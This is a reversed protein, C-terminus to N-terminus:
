ARHITVDLPSALITYDRRAKMLKAIDSGENKVTLFTYSPLSRVIGVRRIGLM